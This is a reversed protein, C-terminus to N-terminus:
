SANADSQNWISLNARLPNVGPGALGPFDDAPLFFFPAFEVLAVPFLAAFDVGFRLFRGFTVM